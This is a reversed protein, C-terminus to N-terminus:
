VGEHYYDRLKMLANTKYKKIMSISVHMYQAIEYQKYGQIYYHLWMYESPKLFLKIDNLYCAYNDVTSIPLTSMIQNDIPSTELNINEKRFLDILYFKLRTYLFSAMTIHSNPHYLVSLHWLKILLLQYFEDYNYKIHYQKLLYHIIKHYKLYIEEFNM